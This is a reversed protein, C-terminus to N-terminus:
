YEAQEDARVARPARTVAWCIDPRTRFAIWMLAGWICSLSGHEDQADLSRVKLYHRRTRPSPNLSGM